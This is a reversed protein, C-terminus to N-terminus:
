DCVCGGDAQLGISSAFPKTYCAPERGIACAGCMPYCGTFWPYVVVADGVAV